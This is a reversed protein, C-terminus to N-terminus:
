SPSASGSWVMVKSQEGRHVEMDRSDSFGLRRYLGIATSNDAGVVVRVRPVGRSSLDSLFRAGLEIGLGRGRQDEAVAMALLEANPGDSGGEYSLTEWARRANGPLLLRPLAALAAALGDRFLFRRYFVGVDEVGAVFGAPGTGDDAVLVISGPWSVMSRYLRTLFRRGLRPLFGTRISSAHLGAIAPADESRAPRLSVPAHSEGLSWPIGRRRTAERYTGLVKAVVEREDFREKARSRGAEGMAARLADHEGLKRIAAELADPSRVPVLLGNVGDAIVDRCGRIDTAVIPLGMAAAEMAARPFGERHSPLVFLDMASYLDVMDSRMGLFKVGARRAEDITESPLSDPKHADEPGICILMYGPGLRRVAAFLEPYGKELVLRGVAGVVITEASAGLEERLQGRRSPDVSDSDFRTLDVGNGLVTARGPPVLRLSRALEYDERSQFLEADSFRAAIAELGYVLGRKWIPDEDTAYYGHVTNVVIPVGSLRGVIRGYVGPKPNHTHLIHPRERRLARWVQYAAHLDAWLNPQRTSATIPVHRIGEDELAAVWSGPASMGVSEGGGAVVAKLQPLLLFRLSMDVTTLHVVKLTVPDM